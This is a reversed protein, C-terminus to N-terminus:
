GDTKTGNIDEKNYVVTTLMGQQTYFGYLDASLEDYFFPRDEEKICVIESVGANLLEIFCDKCPLQTNLYLTTDLTSVGLRAANILCNRESHAAICFDLGEGSEFGIIRRPCYTLDNKLRHVLNAKYTDDVIKPLLNYIIYHRRDWSDCHPIKRPPGNYGTAVISKDRVLIAGVRRSLCSSKEAISQCIGYFYRDWSHVM